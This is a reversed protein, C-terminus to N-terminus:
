FLHGDSGLDRIISSVVVRQKPPLLAEEDMFLNSKSLQEAVVEVVQEPTCENLALFTERLAIESHNPTGDEPFVARVITDEDHVRQFCQENLADFMQQRELVDYIPPEFGIVYSDGRKGKEVSFRLQETMTM